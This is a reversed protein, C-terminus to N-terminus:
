SLLSAGVNMHPSSNSYNSNIYSYNYGDALQIMKMYKYSIGDKKNGNALIIKFKRNSKDSMKNTLNKIKGKPM